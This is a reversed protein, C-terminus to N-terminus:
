EVSLFSFNIEADINESLIEVILFNILKGIIQYTQMNKHQIEDDLLLQNSFIRYKGKPLRGFKSKVTVLIAFRIVHM